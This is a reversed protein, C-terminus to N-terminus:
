IRQIPNALILTEMLIAPNRASDRGLFSLHLAEKTHYKGPDMAPDVPRSSLSLTKKWGDSCSDVEEGSFFRM